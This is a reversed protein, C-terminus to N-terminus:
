STRNCKTLEKAFQARRVQESTLQDDGLLLFHLSESRIIETEDVVPVHVTLNESIVPIYNHLRSLIDVMEDSKNENKM